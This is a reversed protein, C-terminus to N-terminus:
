SKLISNVNNEAQQLLKINKILDEWDLIKTLIEQFKHSASNFLALSDLLIQKDPESLIYFRSSPWSILSNLYNQYDSYKEFRTNWFSDDIDVKRTPAIDKHRIVADWSLWYKKCLDFILLDWSKIQASTFWPLPWIFEIWISYKNLDSDWNRSSVGAHRLIDDDTNFKYVDWNTDITYHASVSLKWKNTQFNKLVWSITNYWTATHHLVIYKKANWKWSTNNTYLQVM